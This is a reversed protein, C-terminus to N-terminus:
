PIQPPEPEEQITCVGALCAEAASPSTFLNLCSNPDTASAPVYEWEIKGYHFTVTEVPPEDVDTPINTFLFKGNTNTGDGIRIEGATITINGATSMSRCATQELTLDDWGVFEAIAALPCEGSTGTCGNNATTNPDCVPTEAPCNVNSVCGRGPECADNTCSIQDNCVVPESNDCEVTGPIFADITCLNGDDCREEASIECAGLLDGHNLHTDVANESVVITHFNTPNNPSIHCLVVKAQGANASPIGIFISIAIAAIVKWINIKM